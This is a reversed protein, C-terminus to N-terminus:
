PSFHTFPLLSPIFVSIQEWLVEVSIWFVTTFSIETFLLYQLVVTCKCLLFVFVRTVCKAWCLWHGHTHQLHLLVKCFHTLPGTLCLGCALPWSYPVIVTRGGTLGLSCLIMCYTKFWETFPFKIWKSLFLRTVAAAHKYFNKTHEFDFTWFISWKGKKSEM